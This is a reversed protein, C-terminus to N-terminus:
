LWDLNPHSSTWSYESSIRSLGSVHNLIGPVWCLTRVDDIIFNDVSDEEFPHVVDSPYIVQPGDTSSQFTLLDDMGVKMM